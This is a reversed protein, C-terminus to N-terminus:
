KYQSIKNTIINIQTSTNIQKNIRIEITYTGIMNLTQEETLNFKLAGTEVDQIIDGADKAESGEKKWLYYYHKKGNHVLADVHDSETFNEGKDPIITM